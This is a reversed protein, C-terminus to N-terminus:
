MEDKGIVDALYYIGNYFAGCISDYDEWAYTTLSLWIIAHILKITQPDVDENILEFFYEETDEWKNSEITLDIENDRIDLRFKKLNFQDYNGKLSYYLKAWDYAADGVMSSYGFYGRPDILVIEGNKRMMMNSFTCDGHIMCFNQPRIQSCLKELEDYYFYVNPCKKGNVQIYKDNSFPILNRVKDLRKLTKGFYADDVSFYDVNDTQMAHLERLATVIKKLIKTKDQYSLNYEYINKGDIKEMVFPDYSYIHPIKNYNEKQVIHYWNKERIALQKGQEDIGEKIIKDADVVLSNFPRCKPRDIKNYESILGYEKTKELEIISFKKEKNKMWKVLEGEIPVDQLKEKDKFIFLGAVGTNDSPIEEFIDNEYRWRCKFGKSLGIYDDNKEPLKFDTPLILDSWILMFAKDNPVVELADKLGACTGKKGSADVIVYRVESFIRLYKRLVEIKYDGIIIFKKNPFQRFLYFIMPLNEIPILAKPKNKTLYEMRSGRGGAQVIIYDVQM